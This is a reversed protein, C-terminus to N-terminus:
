YSELKFKWPDDHAIPVRLSKTEILLVFGATEPIQSDVFRVRTFSGPM